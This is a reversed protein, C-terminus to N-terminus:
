MRQVIEQNLLDDEDEPQTEPNELEVVTKKENMEGQSMIIIASM